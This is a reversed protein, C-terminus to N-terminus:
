GAAKSTTWGSLPWGPDDPTEREMIKKSPTFQVVGNVAKFTGFGHLRVSNGRSLHESIHELMVQCASNTVPRPQQCAMATYDIIETLNTKKAM